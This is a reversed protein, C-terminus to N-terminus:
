RSSRRRLSGRQPKKEQPQETTSQRDWYEEAGRTNRRATTRTKRARDSQVRAELRSEEKTRSFRRMQGQNSIGPLIEPGQSSHQNTNKWIHKHTRESTGTSVVPRTRKVRLDELGANGKNSKCSKNENGSPKRSHRSKGANSRNSWNSSGKGEYLTENISDFGNADSHRPPYIRGQDINVTVRRGRKWITLNNNRLKMLQQAYRSLSSMSSDTGTITIEEVFSAIMQVLTRNVRETLNAQPRYTVTKIHKIDLRHSLNEIVDSIFQPGTDSILSIPAGYRSIFNEFLAKAIAQASAKRLPILESWKTFHDTIVLIYRYREPRSAPYPSLLDLTVIENPSNSVIPILRGAPVVNKYNFKQCRVCTSVYKFIYKRMYPFYCTDHLKLCTKKKGLHGALLQDHFENMIAERLSQPIYVRLEGLTTFYKAYFLLGEILKVRWATLVSFETM